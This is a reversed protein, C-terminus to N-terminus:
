ATTSSDSMSNQSRWCWGKQRGLVGQLSFLLKMLISAISVYRIGAYVQHQAWRRRARLDPIPWGPISSDAMSNQSRWCGREAKGPGGRLSHQSKMPKSAAALDRIGAHLQRRAWHRGPSLNFIPGTTTSSDAMSDQSRWCGREAKGSGGGLSHLSKTLISAVTVDRIGAHLQRQAWHRGPLLDLIPGATTSSDAM